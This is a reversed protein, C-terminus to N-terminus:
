SHASWYGLAWIALLVVTGKTAIRFPMRTYGRSILYGLVLGSVLIAPTM